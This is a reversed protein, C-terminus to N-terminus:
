VTKFLTYNNIDLLANTKVFIYRRKNTQKNTQTM